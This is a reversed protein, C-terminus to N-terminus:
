AIRDLIRKVAMANWTSKRATKVNMENLRSAISHLSHNADRLTKITPGVRSAFDDAKRQMAKPGLTQDAMRGRGGNGLSTITNGAASVHTEGCALKAKITGLAAKTRDSIMVAEHEAMAAMIHLTLKNAMPMDCAVFEVDGEMLTSIFAVNRALRDLKAIVLKAGTLRCQQIAKALQPRDSRKGTEVEEYEGLLTWDGGNLYSAVSKRQAEMGLGSEGQKTTSVRYYAVFLGNM